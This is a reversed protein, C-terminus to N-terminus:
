THFSLQPPIWPEPKPPVVLEMFRKRWWQLQWETVHREKAQRDSDKAQSAARKPRSAAKQRRNGQKGEQSKRSSMKASWDLFVRM